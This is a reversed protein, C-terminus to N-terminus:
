GREKALILSVLIIAVGLSFTGVMTSIQYFGYVVVTIGTLFLIGTLNALLFLGIAKIFDNVKNINM